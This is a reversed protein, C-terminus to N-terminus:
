VSCAIYHVFPFLPFPSSLVMLTGSARVLSTIMSGEDDQVRWDERETLGETDKATKSFLTDSCLMRVNAALQQILTLPAKPLQLNQLLTLCGRCCVNGHFGLWAKGIILNQYKKLVDILNPPIM